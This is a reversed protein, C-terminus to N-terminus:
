PWNAELLEVCFARYRIGATQTQITWIEWKQGSEDVIRDRPKADHSIDTVIWHFVATRRGAGFQGVDSEMATEGRTQLGDVTEPLYFDGSEGDRSYFDIQEIFDFSRFDAIMEDRPLM